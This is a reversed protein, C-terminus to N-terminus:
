SLLIPLFSDVYHILIACMHGLTNIVTQTVQSYAFLLALRVKTGLLLGSSHNLLGQAFLSHSENLDCEDTGM